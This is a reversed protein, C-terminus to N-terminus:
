RFVLHYDGSCRGPGILSGKVWMGPDRFKWNPKEPSEVHTWTSDGDHSTVLNCPFECPGKEQGLTELAGKQTRRSNEAAIAM